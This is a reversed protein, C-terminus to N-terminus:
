AATALKEAAFLKEMNPTYYGFRPFKRETAAKLLIQRVGEAEVNFLLPRLKEYVKKSQARVYTPLSGDSHALYLATIPYWDVEPSLLGRLYLTVDAEMFSCQSVSSHEHMENLLDAHLSFRRQSLSRNKQELSELYPRFETYRVAEGTKSDRQRKFFPTELFDTIFQFEKQEMAIAVFSVFADHAFFQYVDNDWTSHPTNVSRFDWNELLKEFFHHIIDISKSSGDSVIKRVAIYLNESVPKIGKISTYVQDAANENDILNQLFSKSDEAISLLINTADDLEQKSSVLSHIGGIRFLPSGTIYTKDLFNPKNGIPPLAHFPEEFIWRVVKEFNIAEAERSSMDFYLRTSMYIPLLPKGFDDLDVVIAAFKDQDTDQYVRGSIIQAETGVGGERSNAREVYGADCILLVKKINPDSVMAEMFALTDQGERLHWKDLQADIGSQRLSTALRLVWEEHDPSSWRYSIFVKPPSETNVTKGVSM